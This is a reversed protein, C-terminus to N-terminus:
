IGSGAAQDYGQGVGGAGGSGGNQTVLPSGSVSMSLSNYYYNQNNSTTGYATFYYTTGSAINVTGSNSISTGSTVNSTSVNITPTGYGSGYSTSISASVSYVGTLNTQASVYLPGRNACNANFGAGASGSHNVRFETSTGVGSRAYQGNVGKWRRNDVVGLVM